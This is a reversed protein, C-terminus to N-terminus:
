EDWFARCRDAIEAADRVRQIHWLPPILARYAPQEYRDDLLLLQGRDTETRLIRGAAQLVKCMGPFRYAFDYGSQYREEYASRLVNREPGLQPLGVGVIVAGCLREAPLDVGEAFVGGLVAFGVVVGDPAPSFADLFAAREDDGMRPTQALVRYAAPLLPELRDRLASLYAHSPLYVLYNARERQSVFALVSAAIRDLTRTRDAYRTSVREHLVLLQESYFPSPLDLMPADPNLGCLARYFPFPSLTASFLVAGRCLGYTESLMRASDTCFLTIRRATKGGEYLTVYEDGYLAGAFLFSSLMFLLERAPEPEAPVDDAKLLPLVKEAAALLAYPPERDARPEDDPYCAKIESLLVTLSKYLKEKRHPKPVSKRVDAVARLTLEASYMGRGRDPLNHAEDILLTQKKRGQLFYRQLRVRPDFAYNYDCVIVDATNSLDLALEFPCLMHRDALERVRPADYVGDTGAAESLADGLRDYYGEARACYGTRCVPTDHVCAKDRATIVVARLSPIDLLRVADVAARQQTTRATLYFLKDTLGEGVAKLAPFLVAMTKGTGTPASVLLTQKERVTWYVQEALERQGRRYGPFPFAAERLATKLSSTHRIEILLQGLYRDAVSHFAASLEAATLLEPFSTVEGTALNLYTVTVTLEPLGEAACLMHAYCLAQMRHQPHVQREDTVPSYTTKIEEVRSKGYLRDIRGHVTLVVDPTELTLQVTVENQADACPVAQLAQHGRIGDLMRQASADFSLDGSVMVQEIMTRVSVRKQEM